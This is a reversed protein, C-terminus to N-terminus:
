VSGLKLGLFIYCRWSNEVKTMVNLTSTAIQNRNQSRILLSNCLNSYKAYCKEIQKYLWYVVGVHM